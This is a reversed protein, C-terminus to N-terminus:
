RGEQIAGTGHCKPCTTFKVDGINKLEGKGLCHPCVRKGQSLAEIIENIKARNEVILDFLEDNDQIEVKSLKTNLPELRERKLSPTSCALIANALREPYSQIYANEGVNPIPYYKIIEILRERSLAPAPASHSLIADAIPEVLYAPVDAKSNDDHNGVRVSKIIGVLEERTMASSPASKKSLAKLNVNERAKICATIVKEIPERKYDICGFPACEGCQMEGDDGYLGQHGHSAWLYERLQMENPIEERKQPPLSHSLLKSLSEVDQFTQLRFRWPMLYERLDLESAFITGDIVSQALAVLLKIKIRELKDLQCSLIGDNSDNCLELEYALEVAGKLAERDIDM